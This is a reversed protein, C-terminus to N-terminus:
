AAHTRRLVVLPQGYEVPTGDAALVSEVTGADPAEVNTPLGLAEVAGISAGASLTDGVALSTHFIGVLPSTIALSPDHAPIDALPALLPLPPAARRLSVRTAGVSIDLETVDTHRILDLLASLDSAAVGAQALVADGDDAASM